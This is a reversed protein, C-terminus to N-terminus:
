RFMRQLVPRLKLGQSADPAVDTETWDAKERVMLHNVVAWVGRLRRVTREAARRGADSEIVGTLTVLGEDVSVDIARDGAGSMHALQRVVAERLRADEVTLSATIM